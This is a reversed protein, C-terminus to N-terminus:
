FRESYLSVLYIHIQSSWSKATECSDTTPTRQVKLSLQYGSKIQMCHIGPNAPVFLNDLFKCWNEMIYSPYQYDLLCVINQQDTLKGFENLVFIFNMNKSGRRHRDCKIIQLWSMLIQTIHFKAYWIIHANKM